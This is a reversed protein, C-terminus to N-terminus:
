FKSAPHLPKVNRIRSRSIIRTTQFLEIFSLFLLFIFVGLQFNGSPQTQGYPSLFCDYGSTTVSWLGDAWKEFGLFGSIIM